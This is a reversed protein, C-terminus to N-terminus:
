EKNVRERIQAYVRLYREACHTWSYDREALRRGYSALKQRLEPSELEELRKALAGEDDEVYTLGAGSDVVSAYGSAAGVVVPLSTAMAEFLAMSEQRPWV